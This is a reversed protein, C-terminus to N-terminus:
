MWFDLFGERIECTQCVQGRRDCLWSYCVSALYEILPRHPSLGRRVKNTWVLLDALVSGCTTHTNQKWTCILPALIFLRERRYWWGDLKAVIWEADGISAIRVVLIRLTGFLMSPVSFISFFILLNDHIPCRGASSSTADFFVTTTTSLPLQVICAGLSNTHSIMLLVWGSHIRHAAM